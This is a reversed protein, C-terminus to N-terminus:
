PIEWQPNSFTDDTFERLYNWLARWSSIGPLPQDWLDDGIMMRVDVGFDQIMIRQDKHLVGKDDTYDVLISSPSWPSHPPWPENGRELMDLQHFLSVSSIKM